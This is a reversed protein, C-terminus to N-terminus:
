LTTNVLRVSAVEFRVALYEQMRALEGKAPQKTWSALVVVQSTTKNDAQGDAAPASQASPGGPNTAAPKDPAPAAVMVERGVLLSILEPFLVRCDRAVEEVPFEESSLRVLEKELLRIRADREGIAAENRKYLDELIGQRVVMGVQELSAVDEPQSLVLETGQLGYSVLRQRLTTVMEESLPKGLITASIVRKDSSYSYDPNLLTRGTFGTLNESVYRRAAEKFRAELVVTYGTYISPLAIGLTMITIFLRTRVLHGRQIEQIREFHMLRVFGLTSLCIFLANILFLHLAGITFGYQGQALGYGATCLPPMLATAIAVGPVANVMKSKRSGAVAGAGGGFLAILVDYLTPRTRALLESQADELPSISFYLTSAILAVCTAILLNRISRRLLPFDNTALAFGAGVIPGMLPSILMAGIIVATSNVNLGVSAILIAFVLAWINGSHLEADSRAQRLTGEYDTDERLSFLPTVTALFVRILRTM